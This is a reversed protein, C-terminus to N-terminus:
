CLASKHERIRRGPDLDGAPVLKQRARKKEAIGWENKEKGRKM